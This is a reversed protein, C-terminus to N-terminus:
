NDHTAAGPQSQDDSAEEDGGDILLMERLVQSSTDTSLFHVAGDAFVVKAGGRHASSLAQQSGRGSSSRLPSAAYIRFEMQDFHLDRPEMWHIGSESMESLLITNTTGRTFDKIRSVKPAPWATRPGLVAVYSTGLGPARESPCQYWYVGYADLQSNNRSNWPENQRYQDYFPGSELYPSIAVRWSSRPQMAADPTYGLPFSKHTDHYNHMALGLQKLNCACQSRRAAERAGNIAPLAIGLLLAIVAILVFMGRLTFQPPAADASSYADM